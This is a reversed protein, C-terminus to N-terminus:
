FSLDITKSNGNLRMERGIYFDVALNQGIGLYAKQPFDGKYTLAEEDNM